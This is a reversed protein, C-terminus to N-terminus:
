AKDSQLYTFQSETEVSPTAVVGALRTSAPKADHAPKRATVCNKLASAMSNSM